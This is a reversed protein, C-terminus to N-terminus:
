GLKSPCKDGAQSFCRLKSAEVVNLQLDKCHPCRPWKKPTSFCSSDMPFFPAKLPNWFLM